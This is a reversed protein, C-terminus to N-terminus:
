SLRKRISRIAQKEVGSWHDPLPPRKCLLLISTSDGVGRLACYVIGLQATPLDEELMAHLFERADARDESGLDIPPKALNLLNLSQACKVAMEVNFTPSAMVSRAIGIVARFSEVTKIEELIGLAFGGNDGLGDQRSLARERADLALETMRECGQRLYECVYFCWRGLPVLRSSSGPILGSDPWRHIRKLDELVTVVSPDGLVALAILDEVRVDDAKARRTLRNLLGERDFRRM